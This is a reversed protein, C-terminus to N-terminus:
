VGDSKDVVHPSNTGSCLGEVVCQKWSGLADDCEYPVIQGQTFVLFFAVCEGDPDLMWMMTDDENDAAMGLFVYGDASADAIIADVALVCEPSKPAINPYILDNTNLAPVEMQRVVNPVADKEGNGNITTTACGFGLVIVLIAVLTKMEERGKTEAMKDV